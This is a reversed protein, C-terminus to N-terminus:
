QDPFEFNVHVRFPVTVSYGTVRLYPNGDLRERLDAITELIDSIAPQIATDGPTNSSKTAIAIENAADYQIDALTKSVYEITQERTMTQANAVSAAICLAVIIAALRMRPGGIRCLLAGDAIDLLGGTWQGGPM